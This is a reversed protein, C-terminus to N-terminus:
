AYEAPPLRLGRAGVQNGATEEDSEVTVLAFEGGGVCQGREGLLM